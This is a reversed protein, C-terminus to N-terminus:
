NKYINILKEAWIDLSYKAQIEKSFDRAQKKYFERDKLFDNLAKNLATSNNKEFLVGKKQMFKPIGGVKSAIIPLGCATAEILVMPLGERLSPIILADAQKIYATIDEAFGMFSVRKELGKDKAKEKLNREEKGTGLIILKVNEISSIAELLLHCGKEESLRGAYLFVPASNKNQPYVIKTLSLPNEILQTSNINLNKLDKQMKESVAIVMTAKKMIFSEIQEYFKVKLTHATRGHHTHFFATQYPRALYAYFCAKIGHSHIIKPQKKDLYKKLKRILQLDLKKTTEFYDYKINSKKLQKLFYNTEKITRKEGIIILEINSSIQQLVKIGVEIHKEAGGYPGPTFIHIIKQSLQTETM